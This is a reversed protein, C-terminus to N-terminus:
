QQGMYPKYPLHPVNFHADAMFAAVLDGTVLDLGYSIADYLNASTIQSEFHALFARVYSFVWEVGGFDPSHKPRLVMSHGETNIAIRVEPNLHAALNDFTLVRCGGENIAPLLHFQIFFLFIDNTTGGEYLMRAVVGKNADVAILATWRKGHPPRGQMRAPQGRLSRGRRRSCQEEIICCEDIDIMQDFTVDRVGPRTEHLLPNVWFAVRDAEDRNASYYSMTKSTFGLRSHYNSITSQSMTVHGVHQMFDQIEKLYANPKVLSIWLFISLQDETLKM